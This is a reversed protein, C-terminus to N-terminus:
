NSSPSSSYRAIADQVLRSHDQPKLHSGVIKGALEVAMNASAEAIEKLGQDTATRIDRLSRDRLGQAEANAAAVIQQRTHEADRRAEDLIARVEDQAHALRQEYQALLGRADENAKHAAAIQDAIGHERKELGEAIPGWAFKWLVGLLVLFVVFTWIALDAKFDLVQPSGHASGGGHAAGSHAADGSTAAHSEGAPTAAHEEATAAFSSALAGAMVLFAALRRMLM